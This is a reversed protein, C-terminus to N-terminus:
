FINRQNLFIGLKMDAGLIHSLVWDNSLDADNCFNPKIGISVIELLEELQNVLDIHEQRHLEHEPYGHESMYQEETAFHYKTFEILEKLASIVGEKGIGNECALVAEYLVNVHQLMLKHQEDIEVINISFEEKWEFIAM